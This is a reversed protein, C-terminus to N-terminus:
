CLHLTKCGRGEEPNQVRNSERSESSLSELPGEKEGQIKFERDRGIQSEVIWTSIPYDQARVVFTYYLIKNYKTSGHVHQDRNLSM